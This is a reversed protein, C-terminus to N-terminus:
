RFTQGNEALLAGCLTSATAMAYATLLLLLAFERPETWVAIGGYAAASAASSIILYSKRRYGFLPVFDSVLGFVPKIIWPFNLVAFYATVEVPTWGKIKLYYSLPQFIVGVRAQGIGEVVYVIAFFLMLRRMHQQETM